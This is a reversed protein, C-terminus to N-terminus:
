ARAQSQVATSTIFGLPAPQANTAPIYPVGPNAVKERLEWYQGGQDTIVVEMLSYKLVGGEFYPVYIDRPQSDMQAQTHPPIQITDRGEALCNACASNHVYVWNSCNHTYFYKCRYKYFGGSGSGSM